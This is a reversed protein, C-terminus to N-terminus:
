MGRIIKKFYKRTKSILLPNIWCLLILFKTILSYPSHNGYRDCIWHLRSIEFQIRSFSAKRKITFNESVSGGCLHDIKAEKIIINKKHAKYLRYALESDEFYLFYSENFRAHPSNKMFLDAGTVYPVLRYEEFNLDMDFCDQDNKSFIAPSIKFLYMFSMLTNTIFMKILQITHERFTPFKAYSHVLKGNGNTLMTGLSGPNLNQHSNWFDYFIKVANNLLVTDSNLYFIFEGKAIDLGRNNAAGFGLNAKNEIVIVEPFDRRLMQVSDDTSGNDSVIIEFTIDKTHKYISEICNRLLTSTNYNVIIISVHM